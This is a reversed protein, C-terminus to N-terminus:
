DNRRVKGEGRREGERKREAEKGGGERGGERIEEGLKGNEKCANLVNMSSTNANIITM